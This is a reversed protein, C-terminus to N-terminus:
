TVCIVLFRDSRLLVQVSKYVVPEASYWKCHAKHINNDWQLFVYHIVNGNNYELKYLIFKGSYCDTRLSLNVLRFTRIRRNDAGRILGSKYFNDSSGFIIIHFNRAFSFYKKSVIKYPMTDNNCVINYDPKCGVFTFDDM